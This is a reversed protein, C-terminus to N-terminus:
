LQQMLLTTSESVESVTERTLKELSQKIYEQLNDLNAQMKSSSETFSTEITNILQRSGSKQKPVPGFYSGWKHM